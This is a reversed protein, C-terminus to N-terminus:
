KGKITYNFLFDESQKNNSGTLVEWEAKVEFFQFDWNPTKM